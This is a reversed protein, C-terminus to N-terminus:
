GGARGAGESAGLLGQERAAAIWRGATSRPVGLGTEVAKTPPEGILLAVRYLHSVWKLTAATPGNARLQAAAEDTLMMPSVKTVGDREESSQVASWAQRVLRGIPISRIAEGTVPPGDPLRRVHVEQAVLQGHEPVVTVKVDYGNVQSRITTERPMVLGPGAVVHRDWYGQASTQEAM